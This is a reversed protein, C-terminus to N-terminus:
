NAFTISTIIDYVNPNSKYNKVEAYDNYSDNDTDAKFPNTKFKVYSGRADTVIEIEEGNLLGDGDYDKTTIFKKYDVGYLAYAGTGTRLKGEYMLKTNHDTIKDDNSDTTTDEIIEDEVKEFVETLENAVSAHFYKGGNSTALSKLLSEDLNKGLGITYVVIGLEACQSKFNPVSDDSKGDTLLVIYRKGGEKENEFLEISKKMAAGIYTYWGTNGISSIAKNLIAKDNSFDSLVNIYQEFSVVAARDKSGLKEVFKKAVDLRINNPDNNIGQPGMSGSADITFVIDKAVGSEEDVEFETEWVKDFETKNLLVYKSFHELSVFVTNSKGDWKTQVEELRGTSENYYYM